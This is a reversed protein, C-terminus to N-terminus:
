RQLSLRVRLRRLEGAPASDAFLFVSGRRHDALAAWSLYIGWPLCSSGPLVCVPITEPGQSVTWEGARWSIATVGDDRLLSLYCWATPALLILALVPYGRQNLLFITAAHCLSFLAYLRRRLRSKGIQLNLAPSTSYRASM